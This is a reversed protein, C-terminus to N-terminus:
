TACVRRSWQGDHRTWERFRTPTYLTCYDDRERQEWERYCPECTWEHMFYVHDKKLHGCDHCPNINM